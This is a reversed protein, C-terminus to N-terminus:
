GLEWPAKILSFALYYITTWRLLPVPFLINVGQQFVLSAM